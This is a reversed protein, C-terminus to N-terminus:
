PATTQFAEPFENVLLVRMETDTEAAAVARIVDPRDEFDARLRALKKRLPLDFDYLDPFDACVARAIVRRPDIDQFSGEGPDRPAVPTAAPAKAEPARQAKRPGNTTTFKMGEVEFTQVEAPAGDLGSLDVTDTGGGVTTSVHMGMTDLAKPAAIHGVVRGQTEPGRVPEVGPHSYRRSEIEALYVERDEPSLRALYEDRTMGRGADIKVSEAAAIVQQTNSGNLETRAGGRSNAVTKLSRVPVGDQSETSLYRRQQNSERVNAAHDAYNGVVQEESDTTAILTSAARPAVPNGTDAPRVKINARQPAAPGASEDYAAELVAWGTKIAGKFTPLPQAPRGAVEVNYGDFGIEMGRQVTIGAMGFDRTAIYKQMQTQM